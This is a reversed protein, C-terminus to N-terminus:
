NSACSKPPRSCRAAKARAKMPSGCRSAVGGAKRTFGAADLMKNALAVDRKYIRVDPTYFPTNDTRIPGTPVKGRGNLALKILTQRDIAYGIAQRVEKTNLPANRTNFFM